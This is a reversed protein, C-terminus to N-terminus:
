EHRHQEWFPYPAKAGAPDATAFNSQEILKEAAHEATDGSRFISFLAEAGRTIVRM